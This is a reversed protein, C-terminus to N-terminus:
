IPQVEAKPPLGFNNWHEAVCATAADGEHLYIRYKFTVMGGKPIVHSGDQSWSTQYDHLAFPNATFLGYDRAHWHAPYRFSRPHDFITMGVKKGGLTGSYDLWPARHGWIQPETVGGVGNTMLGGADGQMVEQVRMSCIGGEKTDGLKVEGFPALLTVTLDMFRGGPVSKWLRFTRSEEMIAKREKSEWQVEEVFGTCVPGSFRSAFKLHRQFGHGEGDDWINAGNVEGHAVWLSRHHPHDIEPQPERKTAVKRTLCQGGLNVPYFYPKSPIPYESADGFHYQTVLETGERFTLDDHEETVTMTAPHAAPSATLTLAQGAPIHPVIAHLWGSVIQGPLGGPELTYTEGERAGPLQVFFPVHHRAQHSASLTIKAPM